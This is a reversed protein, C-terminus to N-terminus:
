ANSGSIRNIGVVKTLQVEGINLESKKGWGTVANSNVKFQQCNGTNITVTKNTHNVQFNLGYIAFDNNGVYPSFVQWTTASGDYTFQSKYGGGMTIQVHEFSSPAESLTISVPVTGSMTGEWLVTEDNSIRVTGESPQTISIGQGAQYTTASTNGLVFSGDYITNM